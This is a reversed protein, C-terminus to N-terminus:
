NAVVTTMYIYLIMWSHELLHPVGLDTSKGVNTSPNFTHDLIIDM